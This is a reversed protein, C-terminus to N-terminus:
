FFVESLWCRASKGLERIYKLIQSYIKSSLIEVKPQLKAPIARVGELLQQKSCRVDAGDVGHYEEKITKPYLAQEFSSTAPLSHQHQVKRSDRLYQKPSRNQQPSRKYNRRLNRESYINMKSEM